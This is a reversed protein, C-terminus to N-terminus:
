SWGKMPLRERVMQVAEIARVAMASERDLVPYGLFDGPFQRSLKIATGVPVVNITLAALTNAVPVVAEDITARHYATSM